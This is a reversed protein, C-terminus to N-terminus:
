PSIAQKSQNFFGLANKIKEIIDPFIYKGTAMQIFIIAIVLIILAIIIIVLTNIPLEAGKKDMKSIILLQAQNTRRLAKRTTTRL